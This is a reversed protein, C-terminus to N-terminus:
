LGQLATTGKWNSYTHAAMCISILFLSISHMNISKSAQAPLDARSHFQSQQLLYYCSKWFTPGAKLRSKRWEAKSFVSQFWQMHDKLLCFSMRQSITATWAQQKPFRGGPNCWCQQHSLKRLTWMFKTARSERERVLLDKNQMHAVHTRAPLRLFAVHTCLIRWDSNFESCLYLTKDTSSTRGQRRGTQKEHSFSKSRQIHTQCAGPKRQHNRPTKTEWKM